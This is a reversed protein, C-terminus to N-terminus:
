AGGRRLDSEGHEQPQKQRRTNRSISTINKSNKKQLSVNAEDEGLTVELLDALLNGLVLYLQCEIQTRSQM